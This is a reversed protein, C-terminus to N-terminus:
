INKMVYRMFSKMFAFLLFLPNEQTFFDMRDMTTYYESNSGLEIIKKEKKRERMEEEETM